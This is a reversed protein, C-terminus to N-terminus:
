PTVHAAPMCKGFASWTAAEMTISVAVDGSNSIVLSWSREGEVGAFIWSEATKAQSQIPTTEGRRSEPALLTILKRDTDVHFFTAPDVGRFDPPGCNGDNACEIANQISCVWQDAHASNTAFVVLMGALALTQALRKVM